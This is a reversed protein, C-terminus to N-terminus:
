ASTRAPATLAVPELLRCLAGIQTFQTVVQAAQELTEVSLIFSQDDLLQHTKEHAQQLSLLFHLQFLKTAAVKRYGVQWGYFLIQYM